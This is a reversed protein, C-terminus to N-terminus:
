ADSRKLQIGRAAFYDNAAGRFLFYAIGATIMAGLVLISKFPSTVLSILFSVISWGIFLVRSWPQAKFLGYACVGAIVSGIVGVTQQFAVSIHMQEIVRMAMQNTRLTLSSYIGALAAFAM